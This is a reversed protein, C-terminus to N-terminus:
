HISKPYFSFEHLENYRSRISLWENHLIDFLNISLICALKYRKHREHRKHCSCPLRQLPLCHVSIISENPARWITNHIRHSHNEHTFCFWCSCWTQLLAFNLEQCIRITDLLSYQLGAHSVINCCDGHSGWRINHAVYDSRLVRPSNNLGVSASAYEGECECECECVRVCVCFAYM